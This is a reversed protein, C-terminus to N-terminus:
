FRPPIKKGRALGRLIIRQYLSLTEEQLIDFFIDPYTNFFESYKNVSEEDRLDLNQILAMGKELLEKQKM